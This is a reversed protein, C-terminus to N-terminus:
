RLRMEKWTHAEDKAAKGKTKLIAKDLEVRVIGPSVQKMVSKIEHTTMSPDTQMVVAETTVGKHNTATAKFKTIEEELKAIRAHQGACVQDIVSTM